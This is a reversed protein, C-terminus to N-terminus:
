DQFEEVSVMELEGSIHTHSTLGSYQNIRSHAPVLIVERRVTTEPFFFISRPCQGHGVAVVEVAEEGGSLGDVVCDKILQPGPSLGAVPDPEDKRLDGTETPTPHRLLEGNAGDILGLGIQLVRGWTGPESGTRLKHEVHVISASFLNESIGVIEFEPGAHGQKQGSGGVVGEEVAGQEFVEVALGVLHRQINQGLLRELASLLTPVIVGGM